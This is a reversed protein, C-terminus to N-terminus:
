NIEIDGCDNRVTITRDSNNNIEVFNGYERYRIEVDGMNTKLNLNYDSVGGDPEYLEVDGMNNNIMINSQASFSRMEIDGCNNSIDMEAANIQRLDIDGMSNKVTLKGSVTSGDLEFNGMSLDAYVDGCTMNGLRINGLDCDASVTDATIGTLYINGMDSSVSLKQCVLGSIKIEGWDVSVEASELVAGSPYYIKIYNSSMGAPSGINFHFPSKGFSMLYWPRRGSDRRNFSLVGNESSYSVAEAAATRYEIYYGDSPIFEVSGSFEDAFVSVFADVPTKPIFEANENESFDVYKLDPTIGFQGHFGLLRSIGCLILGVCLISAGIILLILTKKNM